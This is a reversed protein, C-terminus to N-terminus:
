FTTDLIRMAHNGELHQYIKLAELQLATARDIEGLTDHSQSLSTMTYVMDKDAVSCIKWELVQQKVDQNKETQGAKEYVTSLYFLANTTYINEPGYM